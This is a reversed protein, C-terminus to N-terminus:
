RAGRAKLPQRGWRNRRLITDDWFKQLKLWGDTSMSLGRESWGNNVLWDLAADVGLIDGDERLTQLSDREEGLSQVFDVRFHRVHQRLENVMEPFTRVAYLMPSAGLPDPWHLMRSGTVQSNRRHFLIDAKSFILQVPYPLKKDRPMSSVALDVETSFKMKGTVPGAFHLFRFLRVVWRLIREQEAEGKLGPLWLKELDLLLVLGRLSLSITRLFILDDESLLIQRQSPFLTRYREGSADVFVVKRDPQTYPYNESKVAPTPLMRDGTRGERAARIASSAGLLESKGTGIIGAVLYLDTGGDILGKLERLDEKLSAARADEPRWGSGGDAEQPQPLPRVEEYGLAAPEDADDVAGVLVSSEGSLETSDDGPMLTSFTDRGCDPCRDSNVEKMCSASRCYRKM